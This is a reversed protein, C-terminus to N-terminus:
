PRPGKTADPAPQPDRYEPPLTHRLRERIFARRCHSTIVQDNEDRIAPDAAQWFFLADIVPLFIRGWPRARSRWARASLTEDAYGVSWTLMPMVLVNVAQDLLLLIQLVWGALFAVIPKM